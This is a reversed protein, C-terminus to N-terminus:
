VQGQVKELLAAEEVGRGAEVDEGEAPGGRLAFRGDDVMDIGKLRDAAKLHVRSGGDCCTPKPPDGTFVTSSCSASIRRPASCITGSSSSRLFSSRLTAVPLGSRTLYPM